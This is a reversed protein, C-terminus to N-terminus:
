RKATTGAEEGVDYHKSKSEVRRDVAYCVGVAEVVENISEAEPEEGDVEGMGSKRLRRPGAM